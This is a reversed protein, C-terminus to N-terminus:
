YAFADLRVRMLQHENIFTTIIEDYRIRFERYDCSSLKQISSLLKKYGERYTLWYEEFDQEMTEETIEPLTM